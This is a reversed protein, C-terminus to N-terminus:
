VAEWLGSCSTGVDNSSSLKDIGAQQIKGWNDSEEGGWVKM